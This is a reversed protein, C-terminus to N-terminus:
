GDGLRDDLQRVCLAHVGTTRCAGAVDFHGTWKLSGRPNRPTISHGLGLTGAARAPRLVERVRHESRRACSRFTPVLGARTEHPRGGPADRSNM